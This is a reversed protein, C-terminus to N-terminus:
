RNWLKEKILKWGIKLGDRISALKSPTKRRRYEIPIERITYGKKTCKAFIEAEVEFGESTLDLNKIVDGKFGWLGTCIDSVKHGNPFLTNGLLTIVRNGFYNFRSMAGKMIKGQLRTGIVVDCEGNKLMEFMPIIYKPPYTYDADIMFLFDSNLQEFATRVGWGKGRGKQLIVKAGEKRAVEITRDQSHGDVVVIEVKCGRAELENSPIERIVKGITEEEDLAPLLVAIKEYM